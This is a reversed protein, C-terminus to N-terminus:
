QDGFKIILSNSLNTSIFTLVKLIEASNEFYSVSLKGSRSDKGLLKKGLQAWDAVDWPKIQDSVHRSARFYAISAFHSEEAILSGWYAWQKLHVFPLKNLINPTAKFYEIASEWARVGKNAINLGSEEWVLFEEETLVKAAIIQAANYSDSLEEPFRKFDESYKM